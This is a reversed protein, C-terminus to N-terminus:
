PQNSHNQNLLWLQAYKAFTYFGNMVSIILGAYGDLFGRKLIYTRFFAVIGRLLAGAPNSYKRNKFQQAWDYAYRQMKIIHQGLSSYTLHVIDGNINEIKWGEPVIVSEHVLDNNYRTHTVPYMRVVRDPYWGCYRIKKGYVITSRNLTYVTKPQTGQSFIRRIGNVTENSLREDADLWLVWESRIFEHARNRQIGFGQWDSFVHCAAGYQEAIKCTADSSGADIIVIPCHLPQVSQLCEVLMAEENKTIIAVTLPLATDSIPNM